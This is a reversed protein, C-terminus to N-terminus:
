YPFHRTQHWLTQVPRDPALEEVGEVPAAAEEYAVQGEPFGAPGEGAEAGAAGPAM